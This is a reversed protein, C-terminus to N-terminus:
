SARYRQLANEVNILTSLYTVNEQKYREPHRRKDSIWTVKSEMINRGFPEFNKVARYKKM